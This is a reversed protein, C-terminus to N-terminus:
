TAPPTEVPAPRSALRRHMVMSIPASLIYGGALISATLFPAKAVGVVILGILVFFPMVWRRPIKLKKLSFMHQRGIMLGAILFTFPVVFWDPLTTHPYVSVALMSPILVAVAAAPTPLGVFYHSSTSSPKPPEPTPVGPPMRVAGTAATFRALRLASCLVFTMVAALGVTDANYGFLDCNSLTWQHLLMAPAVGFCLFDSLSDLMAGFPSQARLMRAARGDLMDFIAAVFICAIAKEWIREVDSFPLNPDAASRTTAKLSFHISAMGTCLAITTLLNPLLFRFPIARRRNPYGIFVM